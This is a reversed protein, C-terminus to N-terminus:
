ITADVQTKDHLEKSYSWHGNSRIQFHISTMEYGIFNTLIDKINNNRKSFSSGYCDTKNPM